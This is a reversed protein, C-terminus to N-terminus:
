LEKAVLGDIIADCLNALAPQSAALNRLEGPDANRDYLEHDRPAQPNNVNKPVTYRGYSYQDTILGRVFSRLQPDFLGASASDVTVLLSDRVANVTGDMVPVLSHGPGPPAKAGSVLGAITPALDIHSTLASRRVGHSAPRRPDCIVLPVRLNEQYIMAGKQRLGHAGGMEGHDATHMVVTHAAQNTSSLSQLVQLMLADTRQLLQLYWNGYKEWAAVGAATSLTMPMPGGLVQNAGLWARQMSPKTALQQLTEFNTPVSAGLNPVGQTGYSNPCWMIDHPNIMSVILLWPQQDKAHATLWQSAKAAVGSDHSTGAGAGGGGLIDIAEGFGWRQLAAPNDGSVNSLHWKGIYATRYGAVQLMTGITPFKASMAGKGSLNDTVGSVPAHVGTFLVSRAPSCPTTPTHHRTFRTGAYTLLDRAPLTYGTPRRVNQREEDTLFLLINPKTASSGAPVAAASAPNLGLAEVLPIASAAGALALFGRRTTGAGSV